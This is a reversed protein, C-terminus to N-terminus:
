DKYEMIYENLADNIYKEKLWDKFDFDFSYLEIVDIKNYLYDNEVEKVFESAGDELFWTRHSYKKNYKQEFKYEIIDQLDERIVYPYDVYGDFDYYLTIQM